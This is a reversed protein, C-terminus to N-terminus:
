AGDHGAAQAPVATATDDEFIVIKKLPSDRKEWELKRKPSPKPVFKPVQHKAVLYITEHGDGSCRAGQAHCPQCVDYVCTTCHLAQETTKTCKACVRLLHPNPINYAGTPKYDASLNYYFAPYRTIPQNADRTPYPPKPLPCLRKDTTDISRDIAISDKSNSSTALLTPDGKLQEAWVERSVKDAYRLRIERANTPLYNYNTERLPKRAIKPHLPAIPRDIGGQSATQSSAPQDEAPKKPKLPRKSRKTPPKIKDDRMSLLIEILPATSSLDQMDLLISEGSFCM